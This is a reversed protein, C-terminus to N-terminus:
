PYFYFFFTKAMTHPFFSGNKLRDSLYSFMEYALSLQHKNLRTRLETKDEFGKLDKNAQKKEKFANNITSSSLSTL